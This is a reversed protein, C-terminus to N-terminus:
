GATATMRYLGGGYSVAFLERSDDEGFSVINSLSGVTSRSRGAYRFVRGSVFDAAIYAAGLVAAYRRGRYVHGGIVTQDGNGHGYYFTPPQYSRGSVCRSANYVVPGERCSWGLNRGGVGYKLVNIEEYGSQGVDGIWLNGTVPDVSFRWPNRLGSAWIERKVTSSRAYPNTPPICYTTRRCRALTHQVDVRLIKGQTSRLSQAENGPDGADGGDGTSVYLYGDKGFALQGAYHNTASTPHPVDLVHAWTNAAVWGAPGSAARFRAIRLASGSQTAYAVFVYPYRSFQPHFAVSLLGREGSTGVRSRVDLYTRVGGGSVVSRVLGRKEVVFLRYVGDRASTVQVPGTFGSRVLSFGVSAVAASATATPAATPAASAPASASAGAAAAAPAQAPVALGGLVLLAVTV